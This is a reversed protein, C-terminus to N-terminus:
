IGGCLIPLNYHVAMCGAAIGLSGAFGQTHIGLPQPLVSLDAVMLNKVGVVRLFRDVVKTNDYSNGVPNGGGDHGWEVVQRIYPQEAEPVPPVNQYGPVFEYPYLAAAQPTAMVSRLERFAQYMRDFDTSVGFLNPDIVPDDAPNNSALSLTGYSATKTISTEAIAVPTYDYGGSQNPIPFTLQSVGHFWLADGTPGRSAPGFAYMNASLQYSITPPVITGSPSTFHYNKMNPHWWYRTGVNANNYVFSRVSQDEYVVTVNMATLLASDGVGSLQLLQSSRAAGGSIVTVKNFKYYTVQNNRSDRSCVGVAKKESPNNFVVKEVLNKTKYFLNQGLRDSDRIFATFTNTRNRSPLGTAQWYLPWSGTINGTLQPFLNLTYGFQGYADLMAQQYSTLGVNPIRIIGLKIQLAAYFIRFREWTWGLVNIRNFFDRAPFDVGAANVSGGGGVVKGYPVNIQRFYAEPQPTTVYNRYIDDPDSALLEVLGDLTLILDPRTLESYDPGQELLLVTKSPAKEAITGATSCGTVGGGIVGYDYTETM